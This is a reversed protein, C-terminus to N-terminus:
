SQISFAVTNTHLDHVTQRFAVTNTHVHMSTDNSVVHVFKLLFEFVIMEFFILVFFFLFFFFLCVRFGFPRM